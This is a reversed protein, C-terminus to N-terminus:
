HILRSTPTPGGQLSPPLFETYFHSGALTSTSLNGQTPVAYGGPETRFAQAPFKEDHQHAVNLFHIYPKSIPECSLTLLTPHLSVINLSPLQM